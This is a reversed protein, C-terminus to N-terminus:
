KFTETNIRHGELQQARKVSLELGKEVAHKAIPELTLIAGITLLTVTWAILATVYGGKQFLVTMPVVVVLLVLAALVLPVWFPLCTFFAPPIAMAGFLLTLGLATVLVGTTFFAGLAGLNTSVRSLALAGFLVCLAVVLYTESPTERGFFHLFLGCTESLWEDM